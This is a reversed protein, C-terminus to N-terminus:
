SVGREEVSGDLDDPTSTPDEYWRPSTTRPPYLAARLLVLRPGGDAAARALAARLPEGTGGAVEAPIGYAAALALWDPGALDVGHEPDGASRQDHRLMGYGGDDVLLV